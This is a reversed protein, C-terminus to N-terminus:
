NYKTLLEKLAFIIGNKIIKDIYDAIISTFNQFKTLNVGWLDINQCIVSVFKTIEDKKSPDTSKWANHFIELLHPDDSYEYKESGRFGFWKLDSKEGIRMFVLFAAFAFLLLPPPHHFKEYYALISPLIRVRMKSISYLSIDLLKHQLFPNHFREIIVNKYIILESKPLNVFPIVENELLNQTYSQFLPDEISEKVFNKGALFAMPMLSTHAGNLIRVKRQFYNKLNSVFQVNLGAKDFPIISQLRKDAEIIWSHYLEAVNFLKDEFGLQKQFQQLDREKPYGTVIRDVISNYFFNATDLWEIFNKELNWNKVLKLMLSKLINGNNEILELPLFRLGKTKDNGFCEYRHYLLAVLKGPFSDPPTKRLSDNPDYVLGAETTNSAIIELSAMEILKLIKDWETKAAYAEKISSVITFEQKQVGEKLGRACLTFLGDQANILATIDAKRPQIVIARGNFLHNHNAIEIFYNFFARIFRGEGFQMVKIPLNFFENKPLTIGIAPNFNLLFNRNLLSM